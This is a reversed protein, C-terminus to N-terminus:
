LRIEKLEYDSNPIGYKILKRIYGIYDINKGSYKPVIKQKKLLSFGHIDLNIPNNSALLYGLDEEKGGHRFENAGIMTKFADMITLIKSTNENLLFYNAEALIKWRYESNKMHMTIRDKGSFFGVAMKLAGTLYFDSHTKLVPLSIITDARFPTESMKLKFGRPSIFEKMPLEYLNKFEIGYNRCIKMIITEKLSKKSLDIAHADGCIIEYDNDKLYKIVAELTDPHTTTPYREYSVHNPHILVTGKIRNSFLKLIKLTFEKRKDSKSYYIKETM